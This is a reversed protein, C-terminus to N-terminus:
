LNRLGPLLHVKMVGGEIDVDLICEHIAPILIESAEDGVVYVDNAGTVMVDKLSGLKEGEDTIVSLGILDAIYFEDEGLPVADKRSVLVPCKKLPEVEEITLFKDFSLIVQDKFYQVSRIKVPINGKKTEIVAEKLDSFRKVDDTTPYVKVAGKLGHPRLIVGVQLFDEM